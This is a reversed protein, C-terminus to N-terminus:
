YKKSFYSFPIQKEPKMPADIELRRGNPFRDDHHETVSVLDNAAAAWAIEAVADNMAEETVEDITVLEEDDSGTALVDNKSRKQNLSVRFIAVREYASDRRLELFCDNVAADDVENTMEGEPTPASIIARYTLLNKSKKNASIALIKKMKAVFEPNEFYASMIRIQVNRRIKKM